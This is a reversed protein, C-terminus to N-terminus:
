TNSTLLKHERKQSYIGDADESGELTREPPIKWDMRYLKEQLLRLRPNVQNPASILFDTLCRLIEASGVQMLQRTCSLVDAFSIAIDTLKM